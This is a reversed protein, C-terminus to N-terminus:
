PNSQRRSAVIMARFIRRRKARVEDPTLGSWIMTGESAGPAQIIESLCYDAVRCAGCYRKTRQIEAPTLKETDFKNPDMASCLAQDRWNSDGHIERGSLVERARQIDTQVQYNEIAANEAAIEKPTM